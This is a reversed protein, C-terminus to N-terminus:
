NFEIHVLFSEIFPSYTSLKILGQQPLLFFFNIEAYNLSNSQEMAQKM